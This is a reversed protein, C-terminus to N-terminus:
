TSGPAPSDPCTRSTPTRACSCAARGTRCRVRQTMAARLNDRFAPGVDTNLITTYIEARLRESAQATSAAVRRCRRSSASSPWWGNTSRRAPTRTPVDLVAARYLGFPIAVGKVVHDPFHARLEGVKAAKPGVIRGSDSARLRDLSIFRREGLDLKALDPEFVVNSTSVQADGFVKNWAPGDDAIEVIGSPSVALVVPKGDRSKLTPLVSEDIAVNPIGLNRALLQVHSLPNGAGTTLIGGVPTLEAVTEPLVYIGSASFADLRRMDPATVLVGRALGPNLANFGVGIDRGFVKHQVGAVRNADRTLVDLVQGYFLLPSGRLQDQMFLEAKPEIEALKAMPLAFDFRLSQTAWGPVRALYRLNALYTSVDPEDARLAAFTTALAASRSRRPLGVAM